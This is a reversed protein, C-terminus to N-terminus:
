PEFKYGVQWVTRLHYPKTPVAEVKKRLRSMHVTVTSLDGIDYHWVQQLLQHRSFVQRPHSALFYLLDFEMGTLEVPTGHRLTERLRPRLVLEGVRLSDDLAMAPVTSAVLRRMKAQVRLLLERPHFPKTLYDDAGARFGAEKDTLAVRGTLMIIPVVSDQRLRRAVELGDLDPLTLDLIVLDPTRAAARQLAETGSAALLVEYHELQLYQALMARVGPDDEVLLIRRRLLSPDDLPPSERPM